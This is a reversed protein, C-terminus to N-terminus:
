FKIDQYFNLQPQNIFITKVASDVAPCTKRLSEVSWSVVKYSMSEIVEEKTLSDLLDYLSSTTLSGTFYTELKDCVERNKIEQGIARIRLSFQNLFTIIRLLYDHHGTAAFASWLYDATMMNLEYDKLNNSPLIFSLNDIEEILPYPTLKYTQNVKINKGNTNVLGQIIAPRLYQPISNLHNLVEQYRKPNKSVIFTIGITIMKKAPVSARPKSILSLDALFSKLDQDEYYLTRAYTIKSAILLICVIIFKISYHAM